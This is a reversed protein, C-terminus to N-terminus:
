WVVGCCRRGLCGEDFLGGGCGGGGLGLLGEGLVLSDTRWGGGGFKLFFFFFFGGFFKVKSLHMLGFFLGRNESSRDVKAGFSLERARAGQDLGPNLAQRLGGRGLRSSQEILFVISQGM